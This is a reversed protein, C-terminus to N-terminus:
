FQVLNFVANGLGTHGFLYWIVLELAVLSAALVGIRRVDAGVYSFDRTDAVVAGAPRGQKAKAMVKANSITAEPVGKELDPRVGSTPESYKFKHKKSQSKKKAMASM